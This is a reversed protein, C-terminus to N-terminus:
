SSGQNWSLTIKCPTFEVSMGSHDALASLAHQDIRHRNPKIEVPPEQVKEKNPM